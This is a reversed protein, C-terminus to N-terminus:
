PNPGHRRQEGDRPDIKRPSILCRQRDGGCDHEDTVHRENEVPIEVCLVVRRGVGYRQEAEIASRQSSWTGILKFTYTLPPASPTSSSFEAVLQNLFCWPPEGM